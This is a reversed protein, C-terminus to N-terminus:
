PQTAGPGMSAHFWRVVEEVAQDAHGSLFHDDGAYVVLKNPHGLQDLRAHLRRAGDLSVRQDKEGHLILVPMDGPLEDAWAVVSRERLAKRKGTRYGPIRALYVQEMEPRFHLDGELDSLGSVVAMATIDRSRRAAMFAMMGGRSAGLLFVNGPDAEPLQRALAILRVVDDVDRGGFEDSGYRAPESEQLGRYQSALVLFGRQAYPFLLRMAMPFSIAGFSGNGGRNYIVVPLKRGQTGKPLVMWGSVRLGDSEYAIARCELRQKGKDFDTRPFLHPLLMAKPNWWANRSRVHAVWADYTPWQEFCDTTRLFPAPDRAAGAVTAGARGGPM